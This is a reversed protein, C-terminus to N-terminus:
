SRHRCSTSAQMLSVLSTVDQIGASSLLGLVHEPTSSKGNDHQLLLQSELSPGGTNWRAELRAQLVDRPPM